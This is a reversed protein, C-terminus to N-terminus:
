GLRGIVWSGFISGIVGATNFVLSGRVATRIDMGLTTLITPAWNYFCYVAFLNTIFVLWVALTDPLLERSFIGVREQPEQELPRSVLVFREDGSYRTEHTIRNLLSALERSRAPYAALFRPSEPLLVYIAVAALLPLAGGAVFASSWGYAPILEAAIAAGLMGGIPVGVIAAAIAQGRVRPPAFEAMLATANPLAGGLGIGTLFRLAVVHELNAAAATALTGVGFVLTSLLVAPRRGHRDGWPGLTFGGVAMGILAAAFAPAFASREIGFEAAMAPAAFGMVQIDFGDIIMIAATCVMVLLPLGSFRARDMVTDVEVPPADTM